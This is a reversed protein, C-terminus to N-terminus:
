TVPRAEVLRLDQGIFAYSSEEYVGVPAGLVVLLDPDIPDIPSEDYWMEHYRVNYGWTRFVPEFGDLGEFEVHRLALVEAM